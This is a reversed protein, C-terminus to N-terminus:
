KLCKFTFLSFTSKQITFYSFHFILSFQPTSGLNLFIIVYFLYASSSCSFIRLATMYNKYSFFDSSNPLSIIEAASIFEKHIM